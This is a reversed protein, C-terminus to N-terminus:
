KSRNGLVQRASLNAYAVAYDSFPRRESGVHQYQEHGKGAILVLDEDNAQRVAYAIAAARDEIVVAPTVMGAMIQGIIEDPAENRPNDNTVITRDAIREAIQGMMPRKGRDREGGCGFVCWLKGACHPRLALLAAELGAPTHAYDIFVAPMSAHQLRQMRGQPASVNQLAGCADDMSVGQALLLALVAAANAVNFDGYLPLTFRGEGWSTDLTVRFGHEVPTTQRVVVYSRGARDVEGNTSVIVVDNDCRAALERGFDSDVNIIRHEMTHELFLRAKTNGYSEMDGHYDIHDRSLNTFIASDFHVGAIREQQIGHSSVELAVHTARADHFGALIEQLEICPPTTMGNGTIEDIGTGLTGIYGAKDQLLQRCQAILFAVTTKGNTGTVGTVAMAASPTGFWRNAIDGIRVALKDVPIVPIDYNRPDITATAPDFLVAAVGGEIAQRLFNLGHSTGGDLAVFVDGSQLKRSDSSLGHIQIAPVSAIGELLQALTVHPRILEAPMSM